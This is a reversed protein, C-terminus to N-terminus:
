SHVHKIGPWNLPIQPPLLLVLFSNEGFGNTKERETVGSLLQCGGSIFFNEREGERDCLTLDNSM